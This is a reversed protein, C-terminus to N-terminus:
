YKNCDFIQEDEGVDDNDHYTRVHMILPLRVADAPLVLYDAQDQFGFLMFSSEENVMDETTANSKTTKLGRSPMWTVSQQGGESVAYVLSATQNKSGKQLHCEYVAVSAQAVTGTMVLALSALIMKM